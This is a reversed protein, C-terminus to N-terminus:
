PCEMWRRLDEMTPMSPQAGMKTVSFAGTCNAFWIARDLDMGSGVAYALAGNFADGAATTDVVANVSVTPILIEQERDVRLSGRCPDAWQLYSATIREWNLFSSILLANRAEIPTGFDAYSDCISVLWRADLQQVVLDLNGEVLQRLCRFTAEAHVGRRLYVTLARL